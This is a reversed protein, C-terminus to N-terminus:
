LAAALERGRGTLGYIPVPPFDDIVSRDILETGIMQKITLSLARPTAPELDSRLESFRRAAPTLDVVVPLSWRPLDEPRLSLEEYAACLKRAHEAVSAGTETLVYEPRLPHGHGPNRRVWGCARLHEISRTLSTRTVGLRHTLEAARAGNTEALSALLPVAWRSGGLRIADNLEIM